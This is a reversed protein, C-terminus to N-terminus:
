VFAVFNAVVSCLNVVCYGCVSVCLVIFVCLHVFAYLCVVVVFVVVVM